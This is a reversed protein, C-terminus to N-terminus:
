GFVDETSPGFSGNTHITHSIDDIIQAIDGYGTAAVETLCLRFEHRHCPHVGVLRRYRVALLDRMVPLRHPPVEHGYIQEFNEYETAFGELRDLQALKRRALRQQDSESPFGTRPAGYSAISVSHWFCKVRRLRNNYLLRRVEFRDAEPSSKETM